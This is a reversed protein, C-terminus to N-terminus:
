NVGNGRGALQPGLRALRLRLLEDVVGGVLPLPLLLQLPEEAPRGFLHSLRRPGLCDNQRWQTPSGAGVGSQALALSPKDTSPEYNSHNSHPRSIVM